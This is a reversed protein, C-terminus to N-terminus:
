RAEGKNDRTETSYVLSRNEVTSVDIGLLWYGSVQEADKM